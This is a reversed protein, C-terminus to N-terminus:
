NVCIILYYIGYNLKCNQLRSSFNFSLFSHKKKSRMFTLHHNLTYWSQFKPQIKFHWFMTVNSFELYMLKTNRGYAPRFIAILCKNCQFAYMPAFFLYILIGSLIWFADCRRIKHIQFLRNSQFLLVSRQFKLFADSMDIFRRSM